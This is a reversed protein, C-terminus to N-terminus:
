LDNLGSESTWFEERSWHKIARWEVGMRELAHRLDEVRPWPVRATQTAATERSEPASCAVGIAARVLRWEATGRAPFKAPPPQGTNTM